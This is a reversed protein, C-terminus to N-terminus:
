PPSLVPQPLRTVLGVTEPGAAPAVASRFVPSVKAARDRRRLSSV